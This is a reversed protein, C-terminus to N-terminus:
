FGIAAFATVRAAWDSRDRELGGAKSRLEDRKTQLPQLQEHLALAIVEDVSEILGSHLQSCAEEIWQGRQLARDHRSQNDREEGHYERAVDIAVAALQIVPAAKNAWTGLTKSWRGKLGPIKLKRGFELLTKIEDQHVGRLKGLAADLMKGTFEGGSEDEALPYQLGDAALAAGIRGKINRKLEQQLWTQVTESVSEAVQTLMALIADNSGGNAIADGIAPRKLTLESRIKNSAANTLLRFERTVHDIQADVVRMDTQAPAEKDIADAVPKLLSRDLGEHIQQLLKREGDYDVLWQRFRLMFVDFRAHELLVAKNELRARCASKVNMLITPIADLHQTDFGRQEAHNLMTKAFRAQVEEIHGPTGDEYNLVIFLPRKRELLDFIRGMIDSSDQDEQRLVFVILDTRELQALSIAEHEIPANIGPTDLLVHGDWDHVHVEDTTPVDGVKAVERGVLTNILTSKGANYAGFLMVHIKRADIRAHWDAAIAQAGPMYRQALPLAEDLLTKYQEFPNM